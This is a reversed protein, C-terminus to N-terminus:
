SFFFVSRRVEELDLEGKAPLPPLPETCGAQLQLRLGELVDCESYMEYFTDRICYGFIEMDSAHTAFSDHVVGFDTLGEFTAADIALCMHAADLSHVFSPPVSSAMKQPKLNPKEKKARMQIRSGDLVTNMRWERMDPKRHRVVFGSPTYWTLYKMETNKSYKSAAKSIWEMAETAAVVVESIAQWIIKAGYVIFENEEGVWPLVHGKELREKVAERTYDMCSMFTAAYPVVMVSRKTTKRDIGFEIWAQALNSNDGGLDLHLLETARDAVDQYVDQREDLDMLNVARGGVADRLMASYHQLGSCTADVAIPVHCVYDLGEKIYGAWALCAQLFQFPSDAETWRLDDLPNEAISCLFETHDQTWQVRDHLKAKDEGWCNAVHIALWAAASESKLAKGSAFELLGKVYDPGQPNLYAPKPYARGRSDLDHPFYFREYESFQEALEQVQLVFLRKTLERRNKEHIRWCEARYEKSYEEPQPPLPIKDASPLGAIGRNMEYVAKLAGLVTKNVRWPTAQIANLSRIVPDPDNDVLEDLLESSARKVLPYKPSDDSFYGGGYLGDEFSWPKPPIVTPLYLPIAGALYDKATAIFELFEETPEVQTMHRRSQSKKVKKLKLMGTSLAVVELLWRGIKLQLEDDWETGTLDKYVWSLELNRVQRKLFARARERDLSREKVEKIWHKLLHKREEPLTRLVLEDVLRIAISNAVSADSIPKKVGRLIANMVGQLVLHAIEDITLHCNALPIALTSRRGVKGEVGGHILEELKEKLPNFLANSAIRGADTNEFDGRKEAMDHRRIVRAESLARSEAELRKQEDLTNPRM